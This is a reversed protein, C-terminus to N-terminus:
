GRTWDTLNDFLSPPISYFMETHGLDNPHGADKWTDAQWHGTGDNVAGLLDISAINWRNLEENFKKIYAYHKAGYANNPYCNAIVPM